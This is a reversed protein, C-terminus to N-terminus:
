PPRRSQTQRPCIPKPQIMSPNPSRTLAEPSLYIPRVNRIEDQRKLDNGSVKAADAIAIPSAPVASAAAFPGNREWWACYSRLRFFDRAALETLLARPRM